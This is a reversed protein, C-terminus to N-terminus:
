GGVLGIFDEAVISLGMLFGVALALLIVAGVASGIVRLVPVISM